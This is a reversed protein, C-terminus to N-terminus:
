VRMLIRNRGLWDMEQLIGHTIEMGYHLISFILTRSPFILEHRRWEGTPVKCYRLLHMHVYASGREVEGSVLCSSHVERSARCHLALRSARILCAGADM